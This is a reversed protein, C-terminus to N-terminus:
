SPVNGNAPLASDALRSPAIIPCGVKSGCPLVQQMKWILTRQPVSELCKWAPNYGLTYARQLVSACVNSDFSRKVSPNGVKECTCLPTKLPTM